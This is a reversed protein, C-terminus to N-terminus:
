LVVQLGINVSLSGRERNRSDDLSNLIIPVVVEMEHCFKLEIKESAALLHSKSSLITM